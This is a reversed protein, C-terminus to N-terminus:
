RRAVLRTAFWKVTLVIFTAVVALIVWATVVVSVIWVVPPQTSVALCIISGFFCLVGLIMANSAANGVALASQVQKWSEPLAQLLPRDDIPGHEIEELGRSQNERQLMRVRAAVKSRIRDWIDSSYYVDQLHRFNLIDAVQHMSAEDIASLQNDIITTHRQLTTSSGLGFCASSVDLLVGAFGLANTAVAIHSNNDQYSLAIIQSQVAALFTAIAANSVLSSSGSKIDDWSQRSTSDFLMHLAMSALQAAPVTDALADIAELIKRISFSDRGENPQPRVPQPIEMSAM